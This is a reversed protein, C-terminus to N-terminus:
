RRGRRKGGVGYGAAILAGGQGRGRRKRNGVGLGIPALAAMTALQPGHEILGSLIDSGHSALQNGLERGANKLQNLGQMGIIRAQGKLENLGQQGASRAQGIFDNGADRAEDYFRNGADRLTNAVPAFATALPKFTNRTRRALREAYTSGGQVGWQSASRQHIGRMHQHAHQQFPDFMITSGCGKMSAKHIKKHQEESVAIPLGRGKKVRIRDGRLLKGIQAPSLSEVEIKHYM